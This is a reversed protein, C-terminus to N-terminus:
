FKTIKITQEGKETQCRLFYMGQPLTSIDMQFIGSETTQAKEAVVVGSASYLSLLINSSFDDKWRITLIDTTPNPFVQLLDLGGTENVATTMCGLISYTLEADAPPM